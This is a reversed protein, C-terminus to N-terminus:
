EAAHRVILLIVSFTHPNETRGLLPLSFAFTIVSGQRLAFGTPFINIVGAPRQVSALRTETLQRIVRASDLVFRGDSDIRPIGTPHIRGAVGPEAIGNNSLLTRISTSELTQTTAIPVLTIDRGATLDNALDQVRFTAYVFRSANDAPKLRDFLGVSLLDFRIPSRAPAQGRASELAAISEAMRVDASADAAGIGTFFVEVVPIDQDGANVGEPDDGCASAALLVVVVLRIRHRM